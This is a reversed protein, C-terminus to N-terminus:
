AAQDYVNAFEPINHANGLNLIHLFTTSFLSIKKTGTKLV